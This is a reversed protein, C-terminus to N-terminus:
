TGSKLGILKEQSWKGVAERIVLSLETQQAKPLYLAQERLVTLQEHLSPDAPADTQFCKLWEDWFAQPIKRGWFIEEDRVALQLVPQDSKQKKEM